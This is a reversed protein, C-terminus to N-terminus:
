LNNIIYDRYMKFSKNCESLIDAENFSSLINLAVHYLASYIENRLIYLDGVLEERYIGRSIKESLFYYEEMNEFENKETENDEMFKRLITKAQLEGETAEVVFCERYVAKVHLLNDNQLMRGAKDSFKPMFEQCQKVKKNFREVKEHTHENELIFRMLETSRFDSVKKTDKMVRYKEPVSVNYKGDTIDKTLKQNIISNRCWIGKLEYFLLYELYAEYVTTKQSMRYRQIENIDSNVRDKVNQLISKKNDLQHHKIVCQNLIMMTIWVNLVLYMKFYYFEKIGGMQKFTEGSHKKLDVMATDIEENFAKGLSKRMTLGELIKKQINDMIKDKIKREEINFMENIKKLEPIVEKGAENAKDIVRNILNEEKDLEIKKINYNLKRNIYKGGRSSFLGKEEEQWNLYIQIFGMIEQPYDYLDFSVEVKDISAKKGFSGKALFSNYINNIRMLLASFYVGDEGKEETIKKAIQYLSNTQMENM